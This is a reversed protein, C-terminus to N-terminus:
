EETPKAAYDLTVGVGFHFYYDPHGTVPIWYATSPRGNGSDPMHFWTAKGKKMMQAHRCLGARLGPCGKACNAGVVRGYAEAAPNVAIIRHTRHCLQMPEPFADCLLHFAKSLEAETQELTVSTTQELDENM